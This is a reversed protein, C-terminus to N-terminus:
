KIPHYNELRNLLSNRKHIAFATKALFINRPDKKKKHAIVVFYYYQEIPKELYHHLYMREVTDPASIKDREYINGTSEITKPILSLMRGREPLFFESNPTHRGAGDKYLHLYFNEDIKVQGSRRDPFLQNELNREFFDLADRESKNRFSPPIHCRDALDIVDYKSNEYFYHLLEFTMAIERQSLTIGSRNKRTRATREKSNLKACCIKVADYHLQGLLKEVNPPLKLLTALRQTKEYITKAEHSM